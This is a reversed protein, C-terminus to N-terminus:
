FQPSPELNVSLSWIMGVLACVFSIIILTLGQNLGNRRIALAGCVIGALGLIPPLLFISIVACAYGGILLETLGQTAAAPSQLPTEPPKPTVPQKLSRPPGSAPLRLFHFLARGVAITIFVWWLAPMHFSADLLFPYNM